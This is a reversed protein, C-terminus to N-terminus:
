QCGMVPQDDDHDHHVHDHAGYHHDHQDHYMIADWLLNMMMMIIMLVMNILMSITIIISKREQLM